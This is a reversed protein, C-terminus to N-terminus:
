KALRSAVIEAVDLVTLATEPEEKAAEETMMRM